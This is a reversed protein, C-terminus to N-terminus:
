HLFSRFTLDDYIWIYYEGELFMVKDGAGGKRNERKAYGKVLVCVFIAKM